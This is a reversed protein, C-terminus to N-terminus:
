NRNLRNRINKFFQINVLIERREDPSSKYVDLFDLESVEDPLSYADCGYVRTLSETFDQEFETLKHIVRMDSKDYKATM